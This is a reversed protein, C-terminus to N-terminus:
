FRRAEAAPPAGAGVPQHLGSRLGARVQDAGMTKDSVSMLTTVQLDGAILRVAPDSRLAAVQAANASVVVFEDLVRETALGVRAAAARLPAPEGELLVRVPRGPAELLRSLVEQAVVALLQTQTAVPRSAGQALIFLAVAAAGLRTAHRPSTM